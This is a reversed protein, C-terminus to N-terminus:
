LRKCESGHYKIEKNQGLVDAFFYILTLRDEDTNEEVFKQAAHSSYSDFIIIRNFMSKIHITEIYADNNEKLFKNESKTKGLSYAKVKEDLNKTEPFITKPKFISTGCFEHHSLYIIATFSFPIDRHIWGKNKYNSSIKQFYGEASFKMTDWNNPFMLSLIKEGTREFLNHDFEHIPDSREGPWRGTTSPTYKLSSAYKKVAYPNKFFDDFVLTPILM